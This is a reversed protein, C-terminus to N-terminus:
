CSAGAHALEADVQALAAYGTDGMGLAAGIPRLMHAQEFVGISFGLRALAHAACLGGPGAGIIAVDFVNRTSNVEIMANM